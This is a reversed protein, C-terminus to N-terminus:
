HWSILVFAFGLGFGCLQPSRINDEDRKEFFNISSGGLMM